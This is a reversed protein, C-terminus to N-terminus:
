QTESEQPFRRTLMSLGLLLVTIIIIVGCSLDFIHGPDHGGGFTAVMSKELSLLSVAAETCSINRLSILVPTNRKLARVSNRAAMAIKFFTYAAIAIMVHVSMSVPEVDIATLITIVSIVASMLLLVTGCLHMVKYEHRLDRNRTVSTVAFYRMGALAAYYIFQAVYWYSMHGYALVANFAAYLLNLILSLMASVVARSDKDTAAASVVPAIRKTIKRKPM